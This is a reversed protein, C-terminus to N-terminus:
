VHVEGLTVPLAAVHWADAIQEPLLDRPRKTGLIEPAQFPVVEGPEAARVQARDGAPGQGEARVAPMNSMLVIIIGVTKEEPIQLFIPCAPAEIWRVPTVVEVIRRHGEARVAPAHDRDVET